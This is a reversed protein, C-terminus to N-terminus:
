PGPPMFSSTWALAAPAQGAELMRRWAEDSLREGAPRVLEYYSFCAGVTLTPRGEVPAVVYCLSPRGVAAQLVEGFDASSYADVVLATGAAAEFVAEEGGAPFTELYELTDGIGAIAAYEEATLAENRLEKEAMNKLELLLRRLAEIREGVEPRLLDREELGRKLMDAAASLRAFADPVPEVYGKEPQATASGAEQRYDAGVEFSIGHRLEAWSALFGYLGRDQWAMGRMFAPYGKGCPKLQRRMVDLSMECASARSAAADALAYEKRLEALNEEYGEYSTDGYVSSLLELARSSGMAAPVDLGRPLMRGPVEGDTLRQFIITDSLDRRGMLRFCTGGTSEGPATGSGQEGGEKGRALDIFGDVAADDELRSAPFSSGFAELALETCGRVDLECSTGALFADTQYLREWTLLAAEGDVEAMHLAAVLLVAQRVNERGKEIGSPGSGPDLPLGMEGLWTVAQFYRELEADGAYHGRPEYRSYDEACGFVPSVAQGSRAAILSLEEEVMGQADPPVEADLGLLRAAVALFALDKLAAERVKGETDGYFARVRGCLSAVLGELDDRLFLKEADRLSYECLTRFAHLLADLTVFRAGTLGQYARYFSEEAGPAVAFGQTGLLRAVGAPLGSGRAGAVNSLDPSVVYDPVAAAVSTPVPYYLAFVDQGPVAGLVIEGARGGGGCGASVPLLLLISVAVAARLRPRKM